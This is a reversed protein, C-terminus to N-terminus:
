RLTEEWEFAAGETVNLQMNGYSSSIIQARCVPRVLQVAMGVAAGQRIHPEVAFLPTLGSGSATVTQAIRHLAYRVPSSGYQWGIYDGTSLKYGGPLGQVRLRLNDSNLTHITPTAAGLIAGGPDMIPGNFRKDYILFTQGPRQLRMLDVEHIADRHYKEPLKASGRWYSAGITSPISQGNALRSFGRPVELRFSQSALRVADYFSTM